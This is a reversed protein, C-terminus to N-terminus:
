QIGRYVMTQAYAVFGFQRAMPMLEPEVILLIHHGQTNQMLTTVLQKFLLSSRKYKGIMALDTIMTQTAGDSIKRGVAVLNHGEYIQCVGASNEFAAKRKALPVPTANGIHFLAEISSWNVDVLDVKVRWPLQATPTSEDMSLFSPRTPTPSVPPHTSDESTPLASRLSEPSQFVSVQIPKGPPKKSENDYMEDEAATLEAKPTRIDVTSESPAIESLLPPFWPKKREPRTTMAPPNSPSTPLRSSDMQELGVPNPSHQNSHAAGLVQKASPANPATPSEMHTSFLPSVKDRQTPAPKQTTPIEEEHPLILEEAMLAKGRKPGLNITDVEQSDARVFAPTMQTVEEVTNWSEAISTPEFSLEEIDQEVDDLTLVATADDEHKLSNQPALARKNDRLTSNGDFPSSPQASPAPPIPTSSSLESIKKREVWANRPATDPASALGGGSESLKRRLERLRKKVLPYRKNLQLVKEYIEIALSYDQGSAAEEAQRGLKAALVLRGEEPDGDSSGDSPESVHLRKTNEPDYADSNRLGPCQNAEFWRETSHHFVPTDPLIWGGDLLECLAEMSRLPYNQEMLHVSVKAQSPRVKNKELISVLEPRLMPNISPDMALMSGTMTRRSPKHQSGSGENSRHLNAGCRLCTQANPPQSAGCQWCTM